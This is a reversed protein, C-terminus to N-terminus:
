SASKGAERELGVDIGVYIDQGRFDVESCKTQM